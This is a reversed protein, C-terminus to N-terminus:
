IYYYQDPKRSMRGNIASPVINYFDAAEKRNNFIGDPTKIKNRKFSKSNAYAWQDKVNQSSTACYINSLSYPGTDNKRCMVLKDGCMPKTDNHKDIGQDLWWQYWDNFTLQWDIERKIASRMQWGFKQTAKTM